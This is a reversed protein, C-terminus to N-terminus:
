QLGRHAVADGDDAVDVAVAVRELGDAAGDALGGDRAGPAEAVHHAVSRMGRFAQAHAHGLRLAADRAVVVEGGDAAHPRLLERCVGARGDLPGARAEVPVGEVAERCELGLVWVALHRQEVRARAVRDPLVDDGALLRAGGEVGVGRADDEDAVRVERACPAQAIVPAEVPTEHAALLGQRELGAPPEDVGTRHALGAVEVRTGRPRDEVQVGEGEPEPAGRVVHRARLVGDLHGPKGGLEACPERLAPSRM